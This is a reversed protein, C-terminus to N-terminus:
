IKMLCVTIVNHRLTCNSIQSKLKKITQEELKKNFQEENEVVYIQFSEHNGKTRILHNTKVELTKINDSM